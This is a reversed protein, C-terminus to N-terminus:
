YPNVGDKSWELEYLHNDSNNYCKHIVYKYNNPNPIFQIAIIRTKSYKKRNLYCLWNDDDDQWESIIQKTKKNRIAYPWRNAIEYDSDVICNLWQISNDNWDHKKVDNSYPNFRSNM